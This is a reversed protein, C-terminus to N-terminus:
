GNINQIVTYYNKINPKLYTIKCTFLSDDLYDKGGLGSIYETAGVENCIDVLRQTSKTKISLDSSLIMPKDINLKERAWMISEMNIDILKNHSYINSTDLNFNQQIKKITKKRWPGEVINVENILKKTAEKEVQVSFFEEVGNKNLFKNRNQFNNKKYQVDDLIIFLDSSKMKEFFGMYPFHEPQHIAVKM